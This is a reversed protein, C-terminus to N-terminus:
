YVKEFLYMNGDAKIDNYYMYKESFITVKLGHDIKPSIKLSFTGIESVTIEWEHVSTTDVFNDEYQYNIYHETIRLQACPKSLHPVWPYGHGILNWIGILNEEIEKTTTFSNESCERMLEREVSDVLGEMAEDNQVFVCPVKFYPLETNPISKSCSILVLPLIIILYIPYFSKM